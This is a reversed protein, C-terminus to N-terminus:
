ATSDIRPIQKPFSRFIKASNTIGGIGAGQYYDPAKAGPLADIFWGLGTPVFFIGKAGPLAKVIQLRVTGGYLATLM